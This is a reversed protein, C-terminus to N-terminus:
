RGLDQETRREPPAASDDLGAVALAEASVTWGDELAAMTWQRCEARVVDVDDSCARAWEADSCEFDRSGVMDGILQQTLRQAQALERARRDREEAPQAM